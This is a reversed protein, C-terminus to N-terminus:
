GSLTSGGIPLQGLCPSSKSSMPWFQSFLLLHSARGACQYQASFISLNKSWTHGTDEIDILAIKDCLPFPMRPKRGEASGPRGIVVSSAGAGREFGGGRYRVGGRARAIGGGRGGGAAGRGALAEKPRGVWADNAASANGSTSQCPPAGSLRL